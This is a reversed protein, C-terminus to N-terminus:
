ASVSFSQIFVAADAGDHDDRVTVTLQVLYQSPGSNVIVYRNYAWLTLNQVQYTGTIGASPSGDYDATDIEHDQWQPLQRADAFAHELLERADVPRSFKAVLAVANDAWGGEPAQTWVGYAGPFLNAPVQQWTAPVSVSIKPAGPTEPAIPTTEIDSAALFEAITTTM